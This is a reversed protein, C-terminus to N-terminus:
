HSSSLSWWIFYVCAFPVPIYMVHNSSHKRKKPLFTLASLMSICTPAPLQHPQWHKWHLSLYHNHSWCSASNFLDTPLSHNEDHCRISHFLGPTTFQIIKIVLFTDVILLGKLVTGTFVDMLAVVGERQLPFLEISESGTFVPVTFQLCLSPLGVMFVLVVIALLGPLTHPWGFYALTGDYYYVM